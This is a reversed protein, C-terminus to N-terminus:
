IVGTPLILSLVMGPHKVSCRQMEQAWPSDSPQQSRRLLFARPTPTTRPLPHGGSKTTVGHRLMDSWMDSYIGCVFDIDFIM